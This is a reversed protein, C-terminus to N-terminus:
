GAQGPGRPTPGRPDMPGPGDATPDWTSWAPHQLSAEVKGAGESWLSHQQEVLLEPPSLMSLGLSWFSNRATANQTRLVLEETGLSLSALAGCGSHQSFPLAYTGLGARSERLWDGRNGSGHTEACASLSGGSDSIQAKGREEPILDSGKAM